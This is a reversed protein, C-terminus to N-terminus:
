GANNFDANITLNYGNADLKGAGSITVNDFTWDSALLPTRKGSLSNNNVILDGNTQAVSKKYITGAGGMRATTGGALGGYSQYTVTSSDTTYYVAIRGGSGGGCELYSTSGGNATISGAGALIGTNIWISGGSGGGGRGNSSENQGNTIIDGEIITTGSVILKVAGGGSGGLDGSYQGGGSGIDDPETISGYGAGGAGATGDGGDGGYGAGGARAGDGGAGTGESSWYGKYNANIFGGSAITFNAAELNIVHTQATTNAYHTLIGTTGITVDGLVVLKTSAMDCNKLTMTGNISLDGSINIPDADMSGNVTINTFSRNIKEFVRCNEPIILEGGGSLLAFIGGEDTVVGKTTWNLTTYTINSSTGTQLHGYNQLTLTDFTITENILTKGIYADDTSDQDNNNIILEDTGATNDRLYITGAGGMRATSVGALGGYAQYSVTSNDTTYYVAIRGGSGGGCELYSTSGGNATISGAGALIGTNIWISGGSGGGGRGNSSENQGNTIIDGEIITTGSVILKVAGGGSGGLDGSYQGGGSGIDDPETISGYSIGGTAGAYSGIGGNGGYGAGGAREADGGQGTGESSQYGKYNANIFGGSAITFNAATIDIVYQKTITNKSHTLIGAAGIDFDGATTISQRAEMYGNITYSTHTRTTYACLRSTEPVILDGGGSLLDFTGGNDTIIGKTSWDLTTYSISTTVTIDLWGYDSIILTDFTYAQDDLRTKGIYSDNTSYNDNNDVILDGNTQAASKKYITGAGGMRNTSTSNKGGFSQFTVTSSDITYYVAIRGGGGGGCESYNTSGGNATISGAGALIGTNIWISGGSGGGGRGNSSENQGNTIIDGEITTTGFVILKVAGGGSGGLSGGYRGGGSGIDDPETISGYSIGGTAGAYSGIGGNGGYGAGGAREADGGQGTGESSQYGKYNANIFGGVEVTLNAAEMNIIHTEETTNATHTLTGTAGVNVDGTVVLKNTTSNGNSLTLVSVNNEGLSLGKITTSGSTLNLTPANTYNGDITVNDGSTPATGEVWNADVTWDTSESGDWTVSTFEDAGIDWSAPRTSGDIDDSFALNPDASLDAGSDKALTDSLSLFFADEVEDGFSVSGYMNTYIIYDESDDFFD